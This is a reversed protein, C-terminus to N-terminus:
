IASYISVESTYDLWRVNVNGFRQTIGHHAEVWAAGAPGYGTTPTWGDQLAANRENFLDKISQRAGEEVRDDILAFILELQKGAEPRFDLGRITIMGDSLSVTMNFSDYALRIFNKGVYYVDSPYKKLVAQFNVCDEADKSAVAVIPIEGEKLNLVKRQEPDVIRAVITAIEGRTIYSVSNFTGYEDSGTLIGANYLRLVQEEMGRCQFDPGDPFSNFDPIATLHNIPQLAQDDLVQGLMGLSFRMAEKINNVGAARAIVDRGFERDLYTYAWVGLGSNPWNEDVPIEGTGGHYLSYIRAAIIPLQDTTVYAEPSFTTASTGNLIGTEFCLKVGEYYYASQKVDTFRGDYTYKKTFNSLSGTGTALAPICLSTTLVVALLSALVRKGISKTVM